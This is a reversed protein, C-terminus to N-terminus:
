FREERKRSGMTKFLKYGFFAIVAVIIALIMFIPTNVIERTFFEKPIYVTYEAM